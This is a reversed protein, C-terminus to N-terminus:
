PVIQDRRGIAGQKVANPNQPTPIRVTRSKSRAKMGTDTTAAVVTTSFSFVRDVRDGHAAEEVKIAAEVKVRKSRRLSASPGIESDSDGDPDRAQIFNLYSRSLEASIHSANKAHHM